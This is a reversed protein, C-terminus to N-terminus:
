QLINGAAKLYSGDNRLPTSLWGVYFCLADSIWRSCTSGTGGWVRVLVSVSLGKLSIWWLTWLRLLMM